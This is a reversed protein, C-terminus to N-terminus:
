ESKSRALSITPTTAFRCKCRASSFSSPVKESSHRKSAARCEHATSKGLVPVGTSNLISGLASRLKRGSKRTPEEGWEPCQFQSVLTEKLAFFVLRFSDTDIEVFAFLDQTLEEPRNREISENLFSMAVGNGLEVGRLGEGVSNGGEVKGLEGVRRERGRRLFM